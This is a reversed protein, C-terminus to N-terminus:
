LAGGPPEGMEAKPAKGTGESPLPQTGTSGEWTPLVLELSGLHFPPPETVQHCFGRHPWFKFSSPLLFLAQKNFPASTLGGGPWM